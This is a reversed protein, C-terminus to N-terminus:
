PNPPTDLGNARLAAACGADVAQRHTGIASRLSPPVVLFVAHYTMSNANSGVKPSHKVQIYCATYAADFVEAAKGHFGGHDSPPSSSSGGFCSAALFATAAAITVIRIM